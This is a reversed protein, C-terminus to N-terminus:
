TSYATVPEQMRRGDREDSTDAPRASAPPPEAGGAASRARQLAVTYKPDAAATRGAEFIGFREYAAGAFLAAGALAAVFRSRGAALAGLAGITTLAESFLLLPAANGSSYAEVVIPGVERRLRRMGALEALAGAIAVRRATAAQRRPLAIMAAGGASAASTAAFVFPMTTRGEHWAPVATDAILVATYTALLPALGAAIGEAVTAVPAPLGALASAAAVVEAGSFASFVYTGVSMPSTPKFVRLMHHFRRPRGLDLILCCGSVGVAALSTMTMRRAATQQGRLRAGFALMAAGAALGGCFFYTPILPGWEVPKIVPQGYYSDSM